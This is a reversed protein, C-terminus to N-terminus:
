QGNTEEEAPVRPKRPPGPAHFTETEKDFTVGFTWQLAELMAVFCDTMARGESYDLRREVHLHGIQCLESVWKAVFPPHKDYREAIERVMFTVVLATRERLRRRGRQAQWTWGLIFAAIIGLGFLIPTVLDSM